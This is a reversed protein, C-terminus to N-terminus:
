GSPNFGIRQIIWPPSSPFSTTARPAELGGLRQPLPGTGGRQALGPRAGRLRGARRHPRRARGRPPPFTSKGAGSPGTLAVMEGAEITLSVGQLVEGARGGTLYAKSWARSEELLPAMVRRAAGRGARAPRRPHGPLHHGPLVAGPRGAGGARLGRQGGLVPLHSIYYVEPDLPIGVRGGAGHDGPRSAARIRNGGGRHGAGGGRLIERQHHDGGHLPAGSDRPDEGAGAHGAHGGRHLEGRAHHLGPDGGHRIREIMLASFLNRNMEGWDKTRFPYGELAALVKRM